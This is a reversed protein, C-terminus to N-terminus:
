MVYVYCENCHLYLVISSLSHTEHKISRDGLAYIQKEQNSASLGCPWIESGERPKEEKNGKKNVRWSVIIALARGIGRNLSFRRGEAEGEGQHM